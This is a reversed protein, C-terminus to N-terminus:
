EPVDLSEWDFGLQAVDVQSVEVFQAEIVICDTCGTHATPKQNPCTCGAAGLLIILLGFKKM